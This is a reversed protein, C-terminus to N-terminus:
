ALDKLTISLAGKQRMTQVAKLGSVPDVARIADELLYVRYGTNLADNVTNLVCYDTALGGAFIRKVSLARLEANLETSAFGSYAEKDKECAKSVTIVHGPLELSDAFEAGATGAICHPPWPGGQPTFSCHDVPHWDRTAFVPLTSRMFLGIYANLVPLIQDGQDIALSGGPLFDKQVDVIILTDGFKLVLTDTDEM